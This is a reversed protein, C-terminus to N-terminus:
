RPARRLKPLVDVAVVTFMMLIIVALWHKYGSMTMWPGVRGMYNNWLPHQLGVNTTVAQTVQDNLDWLGWFLAVTLLLLMIRSRMPLPLFGLSLLMVPVVAIWQRSESGLALLPMFGILCLALPAPLPARRFAVFYYVVLVAPGFYATHAVWTKLPASLAQKSMNNFLQGASFGKDFDILVRMVVFSALAVALGIVIRKIDVDRAHALLYLGGARICLFLMGVVVAISIPLAMVSGTLDGDPNRAFDFVHTDVGELLAPGKWLYVAACAAFAALLFVGNLPAHTSVAQPKTHEDRVALLALPILAASPMAWVCALVVLYLGRKRNSSWLLMSLSSTFIALHDTLVPTFVPVVLVCWAALFTAVTVAAVGWAIGKIRASTYLMCASLVMLVINVDRQANVINAQLGFYEILYIAPFGVTRIARYPDSNSYAGTAIEQIVRVFVSGDWGQGDAVAIVGVMHSVWGLLVTAALAIVAVVTTDRDWRVEM